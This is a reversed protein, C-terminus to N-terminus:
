VLGARKPTYGKRPLPGRTSEAEESKRQWQDILKGVGQYPKEPSPSRRHEESPVVSHVAPLGNVLGPRESSSLFTSSSSSPLGTSLESSCPVTSSSLSRGKDADKNPSSLESARSSHFRSVSPSHVTIQAPRTGTSSSPVVPSIKLGSPKPITSPPGHGTTKINANIAEYRQVMDSISTRRTGNKRFGDQPVSLGTPTSPTELKGDSVAKSVPFLLLSQPRTHSSAPTPSM